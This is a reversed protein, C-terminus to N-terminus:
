IIQRWSFGIWIMKLCLKGFFSWKKNWRCSFLFNSDFFVASFFFFWFLKSRNKSGRSLCCFFASKSPQKPPPKWKSRRKAARVVTPRDLFRSATETDFVFAMPPPFSVSSFKKKGWRPFFRNERSPQNKPRPTRPETKSWGGSGFAFGFVSFPTSAFM